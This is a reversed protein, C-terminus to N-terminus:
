TYKAELSLSFSVTDFVRRSAIGRRTLWNIPNQPTATRPGGASASSWDHHMGVEDPLYDILVYSAEVLCWFLLIWAVFPLVEASVLSVEAAVSTMVAAVPSVGATVPKVAAAETFVCAAVTHLKAVWKQLFPSSSEVFHSGWKRVMERQTDGKEAFRQGILPAFSQM